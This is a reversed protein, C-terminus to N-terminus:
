GGLKDFGLWGIASTWILALVTAAGRIRNKAQNLEECKGYLDKFTERDNRVHADLTRVLHEMTAQQAATRDRVELLLKTNDDM